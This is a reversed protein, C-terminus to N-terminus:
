FGPGAGLLARPWSSHVAKHLQFLCLLPAKALHCVPVSDIVLFIINIGLAFYM